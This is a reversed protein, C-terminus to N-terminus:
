PKRVHSTSWWILAVAAGLIIILGVTLAARTLIVISMVDAVLDMFGM